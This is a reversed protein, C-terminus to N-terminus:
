QKEGVPVPMQAPAVTSAIDEEELKARRADDKNVLYWALAICFTCGTLLGVSCGYSVKYTPGFKNQYIQPGVIGMLQTLGNTIGIAM